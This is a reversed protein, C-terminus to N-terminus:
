FDIFNEIQDYILSAKVKEGSAMLHCSDFFDNASFASNQLEVHHIQMPNEAALEKFYGSMKLNISILGESLGPKLKELTEKNAQLFDILVVKINRQICVGVFNKVNNKFSTLDSELLRANQITPSDWAIPELKAFMYQRFLLCYFIRIIGSFKLLFPEFPRPFLQRSERTGRYDRTEDGTAIPLSDNGPGHLIVYDPSFHAGEFFFHSALESTMAYNLGCNVVEIDKGNEKFLEELIYTWAQKPDSLVHDSFTTSGGYVMIRTRSKCISVDYGKFRFGNIDTQQYGKRIYNPRNWYLGYPRSEIPGTFNGEGHMLYRVFQVGGTIQPIKRGYHYILRSAIELFLFLVILFYGLKKYGGSEELFKLIL